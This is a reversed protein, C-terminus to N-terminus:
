KKLKNIKDTLKDIYEIPLNKDRAILLPTEKKINTNTLIDLDNINNLLSLLINSNISNTDNDNTYNMSAIMLANNGEYNTQRLLLDITTLEDNTIDTNKSSKHILCELLSFLCICCNVIKKTSNTSIDLLKQIVLNYKKDCAIMLVTNSNQM